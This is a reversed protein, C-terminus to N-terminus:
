STKPAGGPCSGAFNASCLSLSLSRGLFGLHQRLLLLQQRLAILQFAVSLGGHNHRIPLGLGNARVCVQLVTQRPILQATEVGLFDFTFFEKWGPKMPQRMDFVFHAAHDERGHLNFLERPQLSKIHLEVEGLTKQRLERRGDEQRRMWLEAIHGLAFHQVRLVEISQKTAEDGRHLKVPEPQQHSLEWLFFEIGRVIAFRGLGAQADRTKIAMHIKVRRPLEVQIRVGSRLGISETDVRRAKPAQVVLLNM